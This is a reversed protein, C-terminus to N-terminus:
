CYLCHWWRVSYYVKNNGNIAALIKARYYAGSYPAAVVQDVQIEGYDSFMEIDRNLSNLESQIENFLSDEDRSRFWFRNFATDYQLFITLTM